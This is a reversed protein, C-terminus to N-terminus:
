WRRFYGNQLLYTISDGIQQANRATRTNFPIKSIDIGNQNLIDVAQAESKINNLRGGKQTSNSKKTNQEGEQEQYRGNFANRDSKQVEESCARVSASMTDASVLKSSVFSIQPLRSVLNNYKQQLSKNEIFKGPDKNIQDIILKFTKSAEIIDSTYILVRRLNEVVDKNSLNKGSSISNLVYDSFSVYPEEKSYKDWLSDINIEKGQLYARVADNVIETNPASTNCWEWLQLVWLKDINKIDKWFSPNILLKPQDLEDSTFMIQDPTLIDNAVANHIISWNNSDLFIDLIEKKQKQIELLFKIFCNTQSFGYTNLEMGIFRYNANVFAEAYNDEVGALKFLDIIAQKNESATGRQFKDKLENINFEAM